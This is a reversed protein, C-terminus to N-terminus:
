ERVTVRVAKPPVFGGSVNSWPFVALDYTGPKLGQVTLGFGADRFRDGHIAAVDPRRGGIAAVGVFLPDGGAVPYAWVHLTEIGTGSVADLDVAWGALLFSRDVVAESRPTDIVMQAGLYGSGKPALIVRVDKRAVAQGNVSRIFVLDYTGVFGVGPAWTFLGAVPDLRSGVPLPALDRGVRLYGTYSGAAMALGCSSAISRKEAFSLAARPMSTSGEGRFMRDGDEAGSCRRTRAIRTITAQDDTARNDTAHLAAARSEAVVSGTTGNSVSFYRSGLGETVGHNDTVAWAITHLGNALQTTDITKFGVAGNTNNLGPFSGAIDPRYNNYTAKGIPAGDILVTITSGDPPITKPQPTLAWGFNVYDSGSVLGGQLPTDITGFPKLAHANDCTITRAGLVKTGGERDRAYVWFQYKGNGQGPLMNTLVMFGWGARSSLPYNPYAAHVDPRAGDIFVGPGLFVQPSGGCRADPGAPEGAVAARCISVSDIEIDDLAWGTVPIAGTVGATNDVPTDIVGTPPVAEAPRLMQLTVVITSGPTVSGAFSLSIAGEVAGSAPLGSGPAVSVSITAPGTGSAPSVRLWPRTPSATWAVSGSGSQTLRVVQPGTFTNTSSVAGFRLTTKDLVMSPGGSQTAPYVASLGAVDDPGLSPPVPSEAYCCSAFMINASANPVSGDTQTHDFGIAHGMEHTLVRSFNLPEKYTQPLDAANQFIVFASEFGDYTTGNLTGGTRDSVSGGGIALVPPPVDDNPDEFTILGTRPPLSAFNGSM